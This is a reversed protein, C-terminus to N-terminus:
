AIRTISSRDTLQMREYDLGSLLLLGPRRGPELRGFRDSWGLAAAGTATVWHLREALPVEPLSRLEELLSLSDNSALSDTGICINLGNRRLLDVPPRLNSIYRNSRPCLCWYVPATFHNMILDIDEQETMCAHVLIVSRDRPVSAVLRKAPSGYHLFDCSMGSRGYWEWLAGCRQYLEKEAPSELFHISLPEEGERCISRFTEDPVSYLSHPTLSTDPHHLLPRFRETTRTNLGFVEAFTRYAIRSREKTPCATEGNSIDGVAAVGQRTLGADASEVALRREEESKRNRVEGMSRAFAAFGGGPPIAGHLYSLEIHCHANVLGPLLIGAHFETFPERDPHGATRIHLITGEPDFEVVPNRVLGKDTLLWNSAIRRSSAKPSNM